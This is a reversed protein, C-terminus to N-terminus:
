MPCRAASTVAAPQLGATGQPCVPNSERAAWWSSCHGRLEAPFSCGGQLRGTTPELGPFRVLRTKVDHSQERPRLPFPLRSGLVFSPFGFLSRPYDALARPQPHVSRSRSHDGPFRTELGISDELLSRLEAM